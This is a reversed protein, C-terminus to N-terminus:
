DNQTLQPPHAEVSWNMIQTYAATEPNYTREVSHFGHKQYFACARLNQQYVELSLWRYRQQVHAMLAHGVGSGYCRQEVFLAGIYRDDLVSIFGVIRNAQQYVWTQARPLYSDRVLPLSQQWYDAAVFPHAFTTSTLWLSM